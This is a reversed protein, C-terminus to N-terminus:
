NLHSLLTALERRKARYDKLSPAQVNFRIALLETKLQRAKASLAKRDLDKLEAAPAKKTVVKAPKKAKKVPASKKTKASTKTKAAAKAM